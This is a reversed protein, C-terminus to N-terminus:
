RRIQASVQDVPEVNAVPALLDRQRREQGQEDLEFTAVMRKEADEVRIRTEDQFLEALAIKVLMQEITKITNAFHRAPRLGVVEEEKARVFGALRDDGIILVAVRFVTLAILPQAANGRTQAFSNDDTTIQHDGFEVDVRADAFVEARQQFIKFREEPLFMALRLMFFVPDWGLREGFGSRFFLRLNGGCLRGCM